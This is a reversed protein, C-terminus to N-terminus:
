GPRPATVIIEGIEHPAMIGHPTQHRHLERLTLQWRGDASRVRTQLSPRRLPVADEDNHAPLALRGTKQQVLEHLAACMDPDNRTHLTALVDGVTTVLDVTVHEIQGDERILPPQESWACTSAGCYTHSWRISWEESSADLTECTTNELRKGYLQLMVSPPPPPQPAHHPMNNITNRHLSPGTTVEIQKSPLPIRRISHM